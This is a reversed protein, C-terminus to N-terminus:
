ILICESKPAPGVDLSKEELATTALLEIHVFLSAGTLQEGQKNLLHVHRFGPRLSTFPLSFQGIFDDFAPDEDVVCFRIMALEPVLLKKQFSDGWKPDLGNNTVTHTKHSFTDAPIGHIYTLVYPDPEDKVIEMDSVVRPLQQGSIVTVRLVKSEIGTVESTTNPDFTCELDRLFTPKLNYGARGNQRFRGLYLDVPEGHTQQNIAVIQSGANWAQQPNYNSSAVRTGSPYIRSMNRKNFEVFDVANERLLKDLKTESFSSSHYFKMMTTALEFSKFKSNTIYNILQSFELAIKKKRHDARPPKLTRRAMGDIADVREEEEDKLKVEKGTQMERQNEKKMNEQDNRSQKQIEVRPVIRPVLNEKGKTERQDGRKKNEQDNMQKEIAPDVKDKGKLMEKVDREDESEESSSVDSSIHGSDVEDFTAVDSKLKKGRILIKNKFFEPSPLAVHSSDVGEKFLM